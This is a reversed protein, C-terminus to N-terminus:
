LAPALGTFLAKHHAIKCAGIIGAKEGLDSTSILLHRNLLKLTNRYVMDRVPHLFYEEPSSSIVGGIIIKDPNLLNVLGALMKGLEQGTETLLDICLQDGEKASNVIDIPTIDRNRTVKQTLISPVHNYIRERLKRCIARGSVETEFCGKKGCHCIINNDYRYVHGMEGAYGDKGYYIEGNIIIGMGIGWGVNVYLMNRCDPDSLMDYEGYAMAKSDNEVFVPFGFREELLTTFLNAQSGEFNFISATTGEQSNVRGSLNFNAAMVKREGDDYGDIFEQVRQCIEEIKGHTNDFRFEPIFSEKVLEGAINMLGLSLSFAKIDVGLFFITDLCFEYLVPRRGKKRTEVYGTPRLIGENQLATVYKSITTMSTGTAAAIEPIIFQRCSTMQRIIGTRRSTSTGTNMDM